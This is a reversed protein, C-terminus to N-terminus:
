FPIDGDADNVAALEADDNSQAQAKPAALFEIHGVVNYAQRKSNETTWEEYQLRGSVAILWGKSLVKNAAAASPGFSAVNIYGPQDRGGRGMGDVVLRLNTVPTGDALQRREPDRALRGTLQINNM